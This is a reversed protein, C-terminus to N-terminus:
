LNTELHIQIIRLLIANAYPFLAITCSNTCKTFNRKKNARIFTSKLHKTPGHHLLFTNIGGPDATTLKM